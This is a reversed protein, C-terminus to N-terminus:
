AGRSHSEETSKLRRRVLDIDRRLKYIDGMYARPVTIQSVAHDIKDLQQLNQNADTDALSGDHQPDLSQIEDYLRLFRSRIRWRYLPPVLKVMPIALALLPLLMIKLRDVLTAAWFPLVRQLFPPGYKYYRTAEESIPLDAYQATPFQGPDSLLSSRGHIELAAALLLDILAPHLDDRAVLMATPAITTVDAAPLNAALDMVGEPLSVPSLFPYLRAYAGGRDFDYLHVGPQRIMQRVVDSEPSAIVFAADVEANALASVAGAHELDLLRTNSGDVGNAALLSMGVARTGSGEAGVTVRTGALDGLHEIQIEDRVFLWLPEFYLSGLAMVSSEAYGEALGSQVLALHVGSEAALLELNEVSGATAKLEVSIGNRGLIEAYQAGFNQYAGGVEGTALVIERPPAPDVFQYAVFLGIVVLVAAIGYTGSIDKAYQRARAM